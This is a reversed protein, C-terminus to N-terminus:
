MEVEIGKLFMIFGVNVTPVIIYISLKTLDLINYGGIQPQIMSMVSFLAIIFLPAAILIGTYFEAYASLQQMFKERKIRWNFLAQQGASKLYTKVDGGSETTSVVGLLVEKFNASPTRKALEKVATLPDIGFQDINRTLKKMESSIEGYEEFEAILKFIVYPPVGSEAIAGMHTLVFPLNAEISKRRGGAKQMPIVLFLAFVLTSFAFPGVVPLVIKQLPMMEVVNIVILISALAVFYGAITTLLATSLYTRFPIKINTQILNEKVFGFGSFYRDVINGLFLTALSTYSM